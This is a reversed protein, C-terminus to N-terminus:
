VSVEKSLNKDIKNLFKLARAKTKFIFQMEVQWGSPKDKWNYVKTVEVWHQSRDFERRDFVENKM